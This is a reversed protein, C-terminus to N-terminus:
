ALRDRGVTVEARVPGAADHIRARVIDPGIEVVAFSPPHVRRFDDKLHGPNVYLSWGIHEIRPVHTHGTFILGAACCQANLDRESHAAAVSLGDLEEVIFKPISQSEYEICWLGPVVRVEGKTLSLEEGDEFDDGLHYIRTVGLASEM